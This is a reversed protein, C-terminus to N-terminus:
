VWLVLPIFKVATIYIKEEGQGLQSISALEQHTKAARIAYPLLLQPGSPNNRFGSLFLNLM